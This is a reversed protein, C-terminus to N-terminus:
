ILSRKAVDNDPRSIQLHHANWEGIRALGDCAKEHLGSESPDGLCLSPSPEEGNWFGFRSCGVGCSGEADGDLLCDQSSSVDRPGNQM